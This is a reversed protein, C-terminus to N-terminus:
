EGLVCICCFFTVDEKGINKMGHMEMPPVYFYDGRGVEAEVRKGDQYGFILAKGTLMYQTQAYQHQHEPLSGGPKITFLRLGYEPLTPEGVQSLWKVTTGVVPEQKGKVLFTKVEKEGVDKINGYIM